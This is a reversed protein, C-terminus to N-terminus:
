STSVALAREAVVRFVDEKPCDWYDSSLRGM